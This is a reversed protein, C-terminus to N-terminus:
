FHQWWGPVTTVTSGRAQLCVRVKYKHRQHHEDDALLASCLGMQSTSVDEISAMESLADLGVNSTTAQDSAQCRLTSCPRGAWKAHWCLCQGM